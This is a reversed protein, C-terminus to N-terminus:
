RLCTTYPRCRPVPHCTPVRCLILVTHTHPSTTALSVKCCRTYSFWESLGAFAAQGKEPPSRRPHLARMPRQGGADARSPYMKGQNRCVADANEKWLTSLWRSSAVFKMGFPQYVVTAQRRRSPRRTTAVRGPMEGKGRAPGLAATLQRRRFRHRGWLLNRESTRNDGSQDCCACVFSFACPYTICSACFFDRYFVRLAEAQTLLAIEYFLNPVVKELSRSNAIRSFSRARYAM